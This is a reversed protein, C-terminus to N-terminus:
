TSPTENQTTESTLASSAQDRPNAVYHIHVDIEHGIPELAGIKVNITVQKISVDPYAQAFALKTADGIVKILKIQATGGVHADSKITM